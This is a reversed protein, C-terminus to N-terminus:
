EIMNIINCVHIHTYLKVAYSNNIYWLCKNVYCCKPQYKSLFTISNKDNINYIYVLDIKKILIYM